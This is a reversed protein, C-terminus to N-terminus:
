GSRWWPLGKRLAKAKFYKGDKHFAQSKGGHSLSGRKEVAEAGKAPGQHVTNGM